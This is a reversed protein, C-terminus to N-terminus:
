IDLIAQIGRYLTTSHINSIFIIMFFNKLEFNYKDKCEINLM